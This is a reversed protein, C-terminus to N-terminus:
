SPGFTGSGPNEPMSRLIERINNEGWNYSAMVLLGSAQAETNNIDRLYRAAAGTAKAAHFREDFPDFVPEEYRPGIKLGYHEATEPIFQWM